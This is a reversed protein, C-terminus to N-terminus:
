VELLIRTPNEITDKIRKLFTVAERGDIIRHDYSLALYMMPRIVVEGNRAVPREQITHMGLVGSQPPNIIPTSLLSGFVGGNSITFTGGQLEDPTIRNSQARVGFDGITKEVEAFSLLEANRIVPVILGRPTSVAVGIDYYNRYVISDDRVQANLAPTQQLADIAAKVFFSMFGLRVDHKKEFEPQFEKRLNMVATMDAENFTTLIAATQQSEVLRSAITRRLPSMRVVEETRAGARVPAAETEAAPEAATAPVDEKLVRGGPGSGELAAADVGREAALKAAAPAAAEAPEAPTDAVEGEEIHAVAEGIEASDGEAKLLKVVTGSAPAPIELTAKDTEIEVVPEDRRVTDGEKKLWTGIFVEAISEGVSPVKVEIAM